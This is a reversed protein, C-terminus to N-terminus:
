GSWAHERPVELRHHAHVGVFRAKTELVDIEWIERAPM